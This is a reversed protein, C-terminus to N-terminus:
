NKQRRSLILKRKKTNAVKMELGDGLFNDLEKSEIKDGSFRPVMEPKKIGFMLWWSMFVTVYSCRNNVVMPAMVRIWYYHTHDSFDM